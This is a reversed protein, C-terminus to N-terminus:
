RSHGSVAAFPSRKRTHPWQLLSYAIGASGKKESDYSSFRAANLGVRLVAASALIQSAGHAGLGGISEFRIEVLRDAPITTV